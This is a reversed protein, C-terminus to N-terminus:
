LASFVHVGSNMSYFYLAHWAHWQLRWGILASNHWWLPPGLTCSSSFERFNLWAAGCKEWWSGHIIRLLHHFTCNVPNIGSQNEPDDWTQRNTHEVTGADSEVCHGDGYGARRVPRWSTEAEQRLRSGLENEQRNVLWGARSVVRQAKMRYIMIEQKVEAKVQWIGWSGLLAESCWKYSHEANRTYWKFM